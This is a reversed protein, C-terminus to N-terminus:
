NCIPHQSHDIGCEPCPDDMWRIGCNWCKNLRQDITSVDWVTESCEPCIKEREIKQVSEFRQEKGTTTNM